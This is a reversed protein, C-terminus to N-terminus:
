RAPSNSYRVRSYVNRRTTNRETRSQGPVGPSCCSAPSEFNQDTLVGGSINRLTAQGRVRGDVSYTVMIGGVQQVLRESNVFGGPKSLIENVEVSEDVQKSSHEQGPTDGLETCGSLVVTSTMLILATHKMRINHTFPRKLLVFLCTLAGITFAVEKWWFYRSAEMFVITTYGLKEWEAPNFPTDPADTEFVQVQRDKFHCLVFHGLMDIDNTLYVIAFGDLNSLNSPAVKFPTVFVRYNALGNKIDEISQTSDRFHKNSLLEEREIKRGTAILYYYASNAGCSREPSTAFALNTIAIFSALITLWVAKTQIM